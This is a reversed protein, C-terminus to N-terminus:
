LGLALLQEAQAKNMLKTQLFFNARKVRGFRAPHYHCYLGERSRPTMKFLVWSMVFGILRTIILFTAGVEMGQHLNPICYYVKQSSIRCQPEVATLHLWDYHRKQSFLSVM